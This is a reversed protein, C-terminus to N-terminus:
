SKMLLIYIGLALHVLNHTLRRSNASQPTRRGKLDTYKIALTHRPGISRASGLTQQTLHVMAKPAAYKILLAYRSGLTRHLIQHSLHLNVWPHVTARPTLTLTLTFTFTLTV